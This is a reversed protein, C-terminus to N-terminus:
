RNNQGIKELLQMFICIFHVLLPRTGIGRWEGREDGGVIRLEVVVVLAGGWGGWGDGEWLEYLFPHSPSPKWCRIWRGPPPPCSVYFRQQRRQRGDKKHSIQVHQLPCPGRPVERSGSSAKVFEYMTFRKGPKQRYFKASNCCMNFLHKWYILIIGSSLNM